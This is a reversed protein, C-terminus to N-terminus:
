DLLEVSVHDNSVRRTRVDKVIIGGLSHAVFVIPDQLTLM